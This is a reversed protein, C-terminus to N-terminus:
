CHKAGCKACNGKARHCKWGYRDRHRWELATMKCAYRWRSSFLGAYEGSLVYKQKLGPRYDIYAKIDEYDALYYIFWRVMRWLVM